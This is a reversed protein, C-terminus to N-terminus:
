PKPKRPPPKRSAAGEKVALRRLRERFRQLAIIIEDLAWLLNRPTDDDNTM